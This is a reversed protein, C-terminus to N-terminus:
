GERRKERTLAMIFIAALVLTIGMGHSLTFREKLFICSLVVASVPMVATFVGATSGSVKSVGHFWFLYALVTFVAGFYFVAGWAAM